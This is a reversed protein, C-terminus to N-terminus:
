VELIEACEKISLGADQRLSSFDKDMLAFGQSPQNKEFQVNNVGTTLKNKTPHALQKIQFSILYGADDDVLCTPPFRFEMLKRATIGSLQFGFLAVCLHKVFLLLTHSQM